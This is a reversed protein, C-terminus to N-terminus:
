YSARGEVWIRYTPDNNGVKIRLLYQTNAKGVSGPHTDWWNGWVQINARCNRSWISGEDNWAFMKECKSLYARFSGDVAVSGIAGNDDYSHREPVQSCASSPSVQWGCYTIAYSGSAGASAPLLLAASVAAGALAPGRIRRLAAIM